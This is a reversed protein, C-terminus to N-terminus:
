GDKHISSSLFIDAQPHLRPINSRTAFTPSSTVSPLLISTQVPSLRTHASTARVIPLLPIRSHHVQRTLQYYPVEDKGFIPREILWIGVVGGCGFESQGLDCELWAVKDHQGLLRNVASRAFSSKGVRKPGKVLLVVPPNVEEHGGSDASAQRDMTDLAESWSSSTQHPYVPM